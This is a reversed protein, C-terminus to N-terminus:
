SPAPIGLLHWRLLALAWQCARQRIAQRNGPLLFKRTFTGAPTALAIWVTGVPKDPTGGDPGAIGTTSLAFDTGAFRRAGEAMARAVPESVAGHERILDDHIALEDHKADNAYTVWGRLFYTSSGPINTLLAALMGGTCSEATALTYKDARLITAVASELTEDNESFLWTGLRDRVQMRIGDTLTEVQGETGTAYIRVSVIGEHVTTGVALRSNEGVADAAAVEHARAMLDKIKEGVLSEGLGFTNLKTVRTIVPDPAHARARERLLPLISTTFMEKMERPVGPMVFIDVTGEVGGGDGGAPAKATAERRAHGTTVHLGPATGATNEIVMASSPRLAQLRNSPSMTRGHRQFWREIQLIADPDEVLSENLADALSQRTLDDVTPGLGGSILLLGRPQRGEAASAAAELTECADRIASVILALQDGVTVHSLTPVGLGGLQQALWASNTNVTQGSALEDGISLIIAHM